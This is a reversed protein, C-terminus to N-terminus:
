SEMEQEMEANEEHPETELAMFADKFAKALDIPSRTDVARLFDEAAMKLAPNMNSGPAEVEPNVEVDPNKGRRAIIVSTMKRPALFPLM